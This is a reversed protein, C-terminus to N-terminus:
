FTVRYGALDRQKSPTSLFAFEAAIGTGYSSARQKEVLFSLRLSECEVAM